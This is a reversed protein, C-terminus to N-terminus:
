NRYLTSGNLRAAERQAARLEKNVLIFMKVMKPDVTTSGTDANRLVLGGNRICRLLDACDNIMVATTADMSRDHDTMHELIQRQTWVPLPEKGHARVFQEYFSQMVSCFERTPLTTYLTRALSAVRVVIGTAKADAKDYYKCLYCFGRDCELVDRDVNDLWSLDHLPVSHFLAAVPRMEVDDGLDRRVEDGAHNAVLVRPQGPAISGGGDEEEEDDDDNNNRPDGDAFYRRAVDENHDGDDNVAADRRQRYVDVRYRAARRDADM